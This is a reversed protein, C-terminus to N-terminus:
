TASQEDANVLKSNSDVGASNAGILFARMLPVIREHAEEVVYHGVDEFRHIEHNPLLEAFRDLCVSNFCWDQMGWIMLARRDKLLQSGREVEDLTKWTPHSSTTPIDRVFRYTAIRNSWNDYPALLGAKVEDSLRSRDAVAMRLAARAFLNGGQIALKGFPPFRLARLRWPVYPPPFAATNFLVIDKFREPQRGAAGLGIAGGWDHAVLTIDSLDLEDILKSVNEIHQALTYQYRQPKDSLGCGIHDPAVVRHDSSFAQVLNRWYFSWTPNGHLMLLPRGQGEDLYHYRLGDLNLEHSSFPYLSRWDSRSPMSTLDPSPTKDLFLNLNTHWQKSALLSILWAAFFVALLYATACEVTWEIKGRRYRTSLRGVQDNRTRKGWLKRGSNARPLM